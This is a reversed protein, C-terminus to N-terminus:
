ETQISLIYELLSERNIVNRLWAHRLNFLEEKSTLAVIEIKGYDNGEYRHPVGRFVKDLDAKWDSWLM